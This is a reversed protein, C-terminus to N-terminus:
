GAASIRDDLHGLKAVVTQVRMMRAAPMFSPNEERCQTQVLAVGFKELGRQQLCRPVLIGHWAFSVM